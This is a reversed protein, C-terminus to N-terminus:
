IKEAGKVDSPLLFQKAISATRSIKTKIKGFASYHRISQLLSLRFIQILCSDIDHIEDCADAQVIELLWWTDCYCEYMNEFISKNEHFICVTCYQKM